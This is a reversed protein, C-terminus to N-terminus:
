AAHIAALGKESLRGNVIELTQRYLREWAPRDRALINSPERMGAHDCHVALMSLWPCSFYAGGYGAVGITLDVYWSLM